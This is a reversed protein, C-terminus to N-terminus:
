PTGAPPLGAAGAAVAPAIGAGGGLTPDIAVEITYEYRGPEVIKMDSVKVQGVEIFETIKRALTLGGSQSNAGGKLVLKDPSPSELSYLWADAPVIDNVQTMFSVSLNTASQPGILELIQNNIDNQKTLEDVRATLMTNAVSLGSIDTSLARNQDGLMGAGVYWLGGLGIGFTAVAVTAAIGVSRDLKVGAMQSSLSAFFESKSGSRHLLDLSPIRTELGWLALGLAAPTVKELAEPPLRRSWYDIGTALLPLDTHRQFYHSMRASEALSDKAVLVERGKDSELRLTRSLETEIFQYRQDEAEEEWRQSSVERWNLLKQGFWSTIVVRAPLVIVGDWVDSDSLKFHVLARLSAYQAIDIATLNLKAHRLTKKYVNALKQSVAAYFVTSQETDTDVTFYDVLPEEDRFLTYQEAESLIVQQLQNAPIRPLSVLRAIARKGSFGLVVNRCKIDADKWLQGLLQGLAEPNTIDGDEDVYPETLDIQHYLDFSIEGAENKSCQVAEISGPSILLGV